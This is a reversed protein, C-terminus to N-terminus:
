VRGGEHLYARPGIARRTLRQAFGGRAAELVEARPAEAEPAALPLPRGDMGAPDLGLLALATPAIDVIGCATADAADRRAGPASVILTTNMERRHLGGHMGGPAPPGGTAPSRGPLGDPDPGDDARMVYVLEPARAHNLHVAGLPLTGPLADALADQAFVMGIDDQAMLWAAADAILGPDPRLARLEGSFGWTFGLRAGETPFYATELGDASLRAALDTIGSVTIQGHDSAAVIATRDGGPGSRAADVIRGFAADAAAMARRSGDSGIARYHFSTDPEPLWLITVDPAGDATMQRLAAEAYAIAGLKPADESPPPGLRRVVAATAEPTLSAGQAHASVTWHGLAGARHSVLRASGASGGHVVGLRRGAEALRCGLAPAGLLGGWAAQAMDLHDFRATDIPAGRLLDPQHFANGVIGHRGPWAGTAISSTAIRTMSPFVSSAETFRVGERAFAELNPMAGAIM